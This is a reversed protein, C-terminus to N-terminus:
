CHTIWWPRVNVYTMHNCGTRLEVMSGCGWCRQWGEVKASRLFGQLEEDNPCDGQHARCKCTVCTQRRCTGCVAIHGKISDPHIFMSCSHDSCYTRDTTGLEIAKQEFQEILDVDLHWQVLALPIPQRCCRVPFLSEDTAAAKFLQRICGKCYDHSCPAVVFEFEEKGCAVCAQTAVPLARDKGKISTSSGEGIDQSGTGARKDDFVISFEGEDMDQLALSHLLCTLQDDEQELEADTDTELTMRLDGGLRCAVEFELVAREEDAELDAIPWVDQGIMGALRLGMDRDSQAIMSRRLEDRHLSAALHRDSSLKYDNDEEEGRLLQEIDQLQLQLILQESTPDM